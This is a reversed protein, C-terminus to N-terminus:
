LPSVVREPSHLNNWEILYEHTIIAEDGEEMVDGADIFANKIGENGGFLLGGFTEFWITYIGGCQITRMADHNAQNTEDVKFTLSHARNTTKKRRGSINVTTATPKPKSGIGTLVRIDKGETASNGLRTAWEIGSSADTFPAANGPAFYVKAIQSANVEPACDDFVFAPLAAEECGVPCTIKAM